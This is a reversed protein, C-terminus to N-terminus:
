ILLMRAAIIVARSIKSDVMHLTRSYHNIFRGSSTDLNNYEQSDPLPAIKRSDVSLTSCIVHLM